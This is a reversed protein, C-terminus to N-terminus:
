QVSLKLIQRCEIGRAALLSSVLSLLLLLQLQLQLQLEVVVVVVLRNLGTGLMRSSDGRRM